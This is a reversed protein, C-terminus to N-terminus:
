GVESLMAPLDAEGAHARNLYDRMGDRWDRWNSSGEVTWLGNKQRNAVAILDATECWLRIEDAEPGDVTMSVNDVFQLCFGSDGM